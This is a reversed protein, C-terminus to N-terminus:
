WEIHYVAMNPTGVVVPDSLTVRYLETVFGGESFIASRLYPFWEVYFMIYTCNVSHLYEAQTYVSTYNHLLVPTVLGYIDLVTGRAFYGIAGVDYTAITANQPVNERIWLSLHVQMEEINKAQNAHHDVYGVSSVISPTFLLLVFVSAVVMSFEVDAADQLHQVKFIQEVIIAIGCTFAIAMLDFLPVLYRAAFLFSMGPMTLRYLAYLSVILTLEYPRRKLLMLAAGGVFSLALYPETPFWAAFWFFNWLDVAEQTVGWRLKSYYSDPLPLGTTNYCHLVWPLVVLAALAFMASLTLLRQKRKKDKYLVVLSRIPLCVAALLVFEPRCLYALGAIVGLLIDYQWKLRPLFLLALLLMMMGLPTEMGSLMLGANRPVLVFVIQGLIAYQWRGTNQKVIEGVLFVDIIYLVGSIVLVSTVVADHSTGFLFIPSLVVSWLPGSSGTSPIGQAYEWPRGEFITRAYQVHIWSDDFAFGYIGWQAMVYQVYFISTLTIGVATILRLKWSDREIKFLQKLRFFFVNINSPQETEEM